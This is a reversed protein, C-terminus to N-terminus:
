GFKDFRIRGPEIGVKTILLRLAADVMPQPGAIFAVTGRSRAPGWREVVEHVMGPAIAIQPSHAHVLPTNLEHSLAIVIELRDRALEAHAALQEVYFADALTRVGFFVRGRHREFYRVSSAHELIAMMGAIGSGGAVCILDCADEPQFTARGLPGFVDLRTGLLDTDFLLDSFRGTPKRKVVFVLRDGAGGFNVMSYARRGALGPHQVTVFQGASFRMPASLLLTFEIVDQTLRRVAEVQGERRLDHCEPAPRQVANSKVRIACDSAARAQCMLVDGRDQRLKRYGPAEAWGPEVDGSVVRAHCTGCTGTACEYPLDFGASLGAALLTQGPQAPYSFVGTRTTVSVTATAAETDTLALLM